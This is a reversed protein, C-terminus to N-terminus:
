SSVKCLKGGIDAKWGDSGVATTAYFVDNPDYKTKISLLRPYNVGYFTVQWDRQYPDAQTVYSSVSRPNFSSFQFVENLYSGSGPTVAELQPMYVDTMRKQLAVM